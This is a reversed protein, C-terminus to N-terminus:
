ILNLERLDKPIENASFGYKNLRILEMDLQERIHVAIHKHAYVYQELPQSKSPQRTLLDNALVQCVVFSSGEPVVIYCPTYRKKQIMREIM